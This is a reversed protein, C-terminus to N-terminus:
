IDNESGDLDTLTTREMVLGTCTSMLQQPPRETHVALREPRFLNELIRAQPHNLRRARWCSILLQVVRPMYRVMPLKKSARSSSIAWRTCSALSAWFITAEM